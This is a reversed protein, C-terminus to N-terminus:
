VASRSWVWLQTFQFKCIAFRIESFVYGINSGFQSATTIGLM